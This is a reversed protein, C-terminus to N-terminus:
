HRATNQYPLLAFGWSCADPDSPTRTGYPSFHNEQESHMQYLGYTEGCATTGTSGPSCGCKSTNPCLRWLAAFGPALQTNHNAMIESGRSSHWWVFMKQTLGASLRQEGLSEGRGWLTWVPGLWLPIQLTPNQFLIPLACTQVGTM